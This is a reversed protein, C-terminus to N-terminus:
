RSTGATGHFWRRTAGGIGASVVLVWAAAGLLPPEALAALAAAAAGLVLGSWPGSAGAIEVVAGGVVAFGLGALVVLPVVVLLVSLALVFPVAGALRALQSFAYGGVFLVVMHAALGYAVARLPDTVTADLSRDVFAEDVSLLAVGAVLVLLFAAAARVPGSAGLITEPGVALILSGPM